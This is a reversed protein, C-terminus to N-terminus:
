SNASIRANDLKDGERPMLVETVAGHRSLMAKRNVIVIVVAAVAFVLNQWPQGDPWIPNMVQFHFLVAILISGGSANFMATVIVSLALLGIFYPIVSWESLPTGGILFAPMHWLAWIAGLILGAWLPAFRRQLLPLAVGRWGLEEVPGLLLMMAMVPLVGYWPSFPFPNTITGLMAAALYALLPIGILLFLWWPVSMRWLTLRRFFSGLGNIGYYWWVLFVGAFAPGYVALIYLPHTTSVEGFIAELQAPFLILLTAIGWTLGFSLALFPGLTRFTMGRRPAGIPKEPPKMTPATAKM